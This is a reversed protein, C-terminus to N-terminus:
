LRNCRYRDRINVRFYTGHSDAQMLGRYEIEPVDLYQYIGGRHFEIELVKSTQDYGVSALNSSNVPIRQM